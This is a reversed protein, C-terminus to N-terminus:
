PGPPDWTVSVTPRVLRFTANGFGVRDGLRVATTGWIRRGNVYTGNTSGHDTVYWRGAYLMVAAHIRSTSDDAVVFDCDAKRGVVVVPSASDPLPLAPYAVDPRLRDALSALGDLLRTVAHPQTVDAVLEALSEDHQARLAHDVRQVFSDHTLRGAVTAERLVRVAHERDADSARHPPVESDSRRM